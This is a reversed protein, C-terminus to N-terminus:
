GTNRILKGVELPSVFEDERFFGPYDTGVRRDKDSLEPNYDIKAQAEDWARKAYELSVIEVPNEGRTHLRFISPLDKMLQAINYDYGNKIPRYPHTRVVFDYYKLYKEKHICEEAM